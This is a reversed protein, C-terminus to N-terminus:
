PSLPHRLDFLLGALARDRAGRLPDRLTESALAAGLDRSDATGRTGSEHSVERPRQRPREQDERRARALRLEERLVHVEKEALRGLDIREPLADM